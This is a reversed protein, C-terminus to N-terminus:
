DWSRDSERLGDPDVEQLFVKTQVFFLRANSRGLNKLGYANGRPVEFSCGRTVVFLKDNITVEILGKIVHFIFVHEATHRLLKIGEFPLDLIGTATFAKDEDFLTAVKFNEEPNNSDKPPTKFDGSNPTWAIRRNTKDDTTGYVFVPLQLSKDKYWESGEIEPDSEYDYRDSESQNLLSLQNQRNPKSVPQRTKAKSSRKRNNYLSANLKAEPIHVVEKIEQLPIFKIDNTLTNDPVDYDESARTYVIRENRWYALPAIKTRKSRRLGDPPPSPLPSPNVTRVQTRISQTTNRKRRNSINETPTHEETIIPPKRRKSSNGLAMNKTLASVKAPSKTRDNNNINSNNNNNNGIRTPLKEVSIPLLKSANDINYDDFDEDDYFDNKYMDDGDDVFLDNEDEYDYGDDDDDFQREPLPSRLPSKKTKKKPLIKNGEISVPSLHFSEAEAETFDIKRAVNNFDDRVRGDTRRSKDKIPDKSISKSAIGSEEDEAFFDDVDEMNYKDRKVGERPKIRSKRGETGLNLIDM